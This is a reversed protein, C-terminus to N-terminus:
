LPNDLWGVWSFNLKPNRSSIWLFSQYVISDWLTAKKPKSTSYILANRFNWISWLMTDAIGGLIYRSTKTMQCADLWSIWEAFNSVGSIDLDCWRALLEWLDHAMGCSFFLHDGNEVYESCVPCLLSGVDIGKRDLNVMTPLKNMSLRWRFVNVKIPVSKNWRTSSLGGQLIHEDVYKRASAVFFSIRSSWM